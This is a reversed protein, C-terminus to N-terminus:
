SAGYQCFRLRNGFPDIVQIWEGWPLREIAPRAYSYEKDALERHFTRLGQMPVLVASGPTADGHHESLHLRLGDRVVEMYLPLDPEFRHEFGVSFGLFGCYFERAKGEEFIRLTPIAASLSISIGPEVPSM